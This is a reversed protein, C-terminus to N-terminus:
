EERLFYDLHPTYLRPELLFSDHGKDSHVTIRTVGAGAERLEECLVEQEHPFFAVDSDVSFVLFRQGARACRRLASQIDGAGSEAALDFYQWADLIRLYTNADFREVFTKGQHLMYSEIPHRIHYWSFDDSSQKLERKARRELAELSVFTKHAIKRALSLGRDPRPGDYYNGARFNPDHEIAHIQEFNLLKQLTTVRSGSCMPVVQRVRTPHRTALVLCLVGGLSGGICAHLKKIKLHDLLKVQSDVIDAMRVTPFSAGYPRGKVPYVSSPGTSGYCGGLYNACIVFFRDTDLAKGSGVFDDWWGGYCEPTWRTGLGPIASCHGAVHQSGTMAHFVLIANSRDKNLRGHTEYAVTVSELKEGCMLKHPRTKSAFTFLQTKAGTDAPKRPM